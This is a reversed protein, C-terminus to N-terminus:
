CIIKYIVSETAAKENRVGLDSIIEMCNINMKAVSDSMVTLGGPHSRRTM